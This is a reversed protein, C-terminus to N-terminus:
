KTKEEAQVWNPSTWAMQGNQQTVKIFYYDGERTHPDTIRRRFDLEGPEILSHIKLKPASFKDITSLYLDRQLLDRKPTTIERQFPTGNNSGQVTVTLSSELPGMWDLSVSSVPRTNRRSTFSEIELRGDDIVSLRNIEEVSGAGGCFETSIDSFRSNKATVLIKWLTLGQSELKDWGWEIRTRHRDAPSNNSEGSIFEKGGFLEWPESNKFVEITQLRDRGEVEIDLILQDDVRVIEGPLKGNARTRVRIRDGTVAYTHRSRLAEFVSDRSLSEAYIATLGLGHGGPYGFHDDSDAIFGFKRGRGLQVLGSQSREIGGMSHGYMGPLGGPELSNGHESLIEVM